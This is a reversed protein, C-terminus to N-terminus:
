KPAEGEGSLMSRLLADIEDEALQDVDVAAPIPVEAIDGGDGAAPGAERTTAALDPTAPDVTLLLHTIDRPTSAALLDSANFQRGFDRQLQNRLEVAMLSDFGWVGLPQGPDITSPDGVGLIRALTSRVYQEVVTTREGNERAAALRDAISVTSAIDPATPSPATRIAGVLESLIPPEEGPPTNQAFRDWHIPVAALQAHDQELLQAFLAAGQEPEILEIGRSRMRRELDTGQRSAMGGAAWGGWNILAPLGAARRHQALADMFANAAAYNAQGANGLVSTTSSFLVFFDLSRDRTRTHLNWAGAVKPAMVRALRSWDLQAVLCDDIQGAAHIVGRLPRDATDVLDLARDLEGASAVDGPVVLIEAGRNRLAAIRAEAEGGPPRRSMLAVRTAGQTVLVEATVLGLAGLGGTILYSADPRVRPASRHAKPRPPAESRARSEAAGDVVVIKGTHRAQAMFRFAHLARELPFTHVPLPRLRGAAVDAFITELLARILAPERRCVEGLIIIQYDVDPRLAAARAPDMIGIKGLEMFRGGRALAAFSAELLQGTVSNLVVDVGHGGTAKRIREAFDLSRSDLVHRVGLSRVVQRKRPSGATAFIEAGARQALQVAAMGVGGAAAHILVRDGRRVRALHDLAYAASLFAVPVTAAQTWSLREPKRVILDEHATVYEAFARNSMGVVEDGVAVRSVDRGTAVVIGACESGLPGADGPYMGLANLVDRFNLGSALVRIEVERPGPRVRPTPELRLDDLAGKRHIVLAHGHTEPLPTRDHVADKPTLRVLRPVYREGHLAVQNESDAARIEAVLEAADTAPNPELGLDVLTCGLDPHELALTRGLGWLPAGRMDVLAPEQEVSQTGRTILWLRGPLSVASSALAQVLHVVSGVVPAVTAMVPEVDDHPGSANWPGPPTRDHHPGKAEGPWSGLSWLHIAGRILNGDATVSQILSRYDEPRDPRIRVGAAGDLEFSDGPRVVVVREGAGPLLRALVNSVGEDDAFVLWAGTAGAAPAGNSHQHPPSTAGNTGPAPSRPRSRWQIQYLVDPRATLAVGAPSHDGKPQRLVMGEVSVVVEGGEDFLALDAVANGASDKGHFRAYAWAPAHATYLHARAFATPIGIGSTGGGNGAATTLRLIQMCGDLAGPDVGSAGSAIGPQDAPHLRGLASSGDHWAEALRRFSPGYEIGLHRLDAYLAAVSVPEACRTRADAFTTPPRATTGSGITVRARAHVIWSASSDADADRSVVRASFVGSDGTDIVLQVVKREDGRFLLAEDIAFDLITTPGSGAIEHIGATILHVFGTAPFVGAGRIVHDRLLSTSRADLEVEFVTSHLVPSRLQRGPWQPEGHLAAAGVAAAPAVTRGPSYADVWFREREFPYTPLVVKSRPYPRDFERWDIDVGAAYLAAVSEALQEWDGRNRRLSPLWVLEPSDLQRRAMGILTPHPGIELFARVGRAAITAVAEAFRVPERAQRRWYGPSTLEGPSAIRGTLNTAIDVAPDRLEVTSAEHELEDLIPEILPSHFAHSVTLRECRVGEATFHAIVRDIDAADGSVVTNEPGNLAAIAVSRGAADLAPRVRNEPAFIAAMGGGPPLSQMLRARAAVLRLGDEISFVGAVCAAALEGVSHGVLIDPRVGWSQWLRALAVELAFLAPQTFGTQDLLGGSDEFLVPLLPRDLLDRAAEDCEDLMARFDPHTDYLARGMGVYQAGQGTFLFAIGPREGDAAVGRHTGAPSEGRLQAEIRAALQETNAGTVALRHGFHSRGAAATHCADAATIDADNRLAAGYRGALQELATDTRASLPLVHIPRDPVPESPVRTPAEELIVHANTGSFGFASIGARRPHERQPWSTLATPVRIPMADWAIHPNPEDFHLHAPIARHRLSLAVKIVGAIGAAAELHGINTKVSGIYLPEDAPRGEDYVADLARVEIPDGLPTGTGHTEIYDVEGPELGADLLAERMVAQQAAGNPVTLGSSRGDHNYAAGRIVAVVSDGDNLADSLRKLVIMGGGEGRVYGDARADFTRCRGGPSLARLKSLLITALPSLMLNVGGALALDCNRARLERVALTIAVLSSSCATDLALNPGHLGLVYSIRGSTVCMANGTGTYANPTADGAQVQLVHYDSTSVGVFVGTRSGALSDPPRGASELAEWSLELLLRQQPDIGAAERPSIGFFKPDFTDVPVDLFGGSRTHMKGPADPDPDYFADADWRGPPIEGVGDRGDHLLRWYSEPDNAGAPFRCAAGIIAIPERRAREMEEIRSSMDRLALLARKMPASEDFNSADRELPRTEREEM